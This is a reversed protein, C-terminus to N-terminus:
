KSKDEDTGSEGMTRLIFEDRDWVIALAAGGPGFLVILLVLKAIMGIWSVHTKVSYYLYSAWLLAAGCAFIMDWQLLHLVGHAFSDVKADSLLPPLFVTSANFLSLSLPGTKVLLYLTSLQMIAPILLGFIYVIRAAYIYQQNRSTNKIISSPTPLLRKILLQILAVWIPFFQWVAILYQHSVFTSFRPSPLAMMVAPLVYGLLVSAPLAILERPDSTISTVIGPSSITSSTPSTQLNLAFYLPM